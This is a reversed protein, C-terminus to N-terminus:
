KGTEEGDTGAPPAGFPDSGRPMPAAGGAAPPKPAGFPDDAAPAADTSSPPADAPKAPESAAEAERPDVHLTPYIAEIPRLCQLLGSRTALYVRDTRMNTLRIDPLVDAMNSVRTGSALDLIVLRELRDVAFLHTASAALIQRVDPATWVISGDATAVHFLHNTSDVAFLADGLVVPSRVIPEGLSRTWAITGSAENVCYVYGDISAAFVRKGWATPGGVFAKTAEIRYRISRSHAAAVYLYGRNTTWAAISPTVIPSEMAHGLGHYAAVPAGLDTASYIELAGNIMPLFVLERSLAPGAVPVHRTRRKSLTRGDKRDLVHLMSGHVVAVRDNEAAAASMPHGPPGVQVSWLRRGTEGDIADLAGQDTTIFLTAIPVVHEVVEAAAGRLTLREAELDARKKAGDKGIPLGDADPEDEAYIRRLDGVRLEYSARSEKSHVHLTVAQIEGRAPDVAAQTAWARVLGFRTAADHSVLGTPQAQLAVPGGLIALLALPVATSPRRSRPSRIM